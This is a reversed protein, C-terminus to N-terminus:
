TSLLNPRRERRHRTPRCSPSCRRSVRQRSMAVSAYGDDFDAEISISNDPSSTAVMVGVVEGDDDFAIVEIVRDSASTEARAPAFTPSSAPAATLVWSLITTATYM